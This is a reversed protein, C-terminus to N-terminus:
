AGRMRMQRPDTERIIVSVSDQNFGKFGQRREIVELHSGIAGESRLRKAADKALQGEREAEEIGEDEAKWNEGETFAQKLFPFDSFPNMVRIGRGELQARGREFDFRLAVHHLGAQFASEGHLATWLGVTGKKKEYGLGQSSFDIDREAPFLDVDAFVAYGSDESEMVQAGWGAKDGAYFRERPDMGLMSMVRMLAAFSPRSSRYTLHDMNALGLGLEDQVELQGRGAASRSLWYTIESRFFADAVRPTGLRASASAVIEELDAFAKDRSPFQRERDEFRRLTDEYEGADHVEPPDFGTFGRREIALVRMEKEDLMALKRFASNPEGEVADDISWAKRFDDASWVKLALEPTGDGIVLPFLMTGHAKYVKSRGVTRLGHAQVAKRDAIAMPVRVHDVWDYFRTGTTDEIRRSIDYVRDNNDLFWDVLQHLHNEAEPNLGWDFAQPM